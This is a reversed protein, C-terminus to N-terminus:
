AAILTQSKLPYVKLLQLLFSKMLIGKKDLCASFIPLILDCRGNKDVTLSKNVNNGILTCLKSFEQQAYVNSIMLHDPLFFMLGKADPKPEEPNAQYTLIKGGKYIGKWGGHYEGSNIEELHPGHDSTFYVFTNEKLGLKEVAAMIQGVSWDMDEVNDGYRSRVSHNVFPQTNFLATHVKAYSMYLLFPSDKNARLFNVAEDTFRTTLNELIIPQEVVEYNKMVFCNFRGTLLLHCAIPFSILLIITLLFIFATM